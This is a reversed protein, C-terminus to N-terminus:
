ALAQAVVQLIGEAPRAGLERSVERGGVFVAMTPISRIGFRQGLTPVADTDVKAVVLRGAESGAVKELEPAVMVCPGCWPAWFDVLVPLPSATVLADFVADTAIEIPAAVPGLDAQCHGCRGAEALKAWPVRNKTRCATCALVVGEVDTALSAM